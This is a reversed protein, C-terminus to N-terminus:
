KKDKKPRDCYIHIKGAEPSVEVRVDTWGQATLRNLVTGVRKTDVLSTDYIRLSKQFPVDIPHAMIYTRMQYGRAHNGM